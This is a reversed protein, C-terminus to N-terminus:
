LSVSSIISILFVIGADVLLAYQLGGLVGSLSGILPPGILVGVYSMSSVWAIAETPEMKEFRAAGTASIVMPAVACLGVGCIGFGAIAVALAAADSPVFPAVVVVALGIAAVM